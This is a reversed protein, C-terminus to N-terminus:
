PGACLVPWPEAATQRVGAYRAAHVLHGRALPHPGPALQSSWTPLVLVDVQQALADSKDIATMAELRRGALRQRRDDLPLCV